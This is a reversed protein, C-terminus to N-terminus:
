LKWWGYDPWFNRWINKQNGHNKSREKIQYEANLRVTASNELLNKKLKTRARNLRTFIANERAELIKAIEKASYGEYYFLYLINRDEESLQQLEELTESQFETLKYEAARLPVTKKRSASKLHNKCKNIAVRILWAKIHEEEIIDITLDYDFQPQKLLALFVEQVIDEADLKNRTHQYTIRILMDSYTNVAYDIFNNKSFDPM